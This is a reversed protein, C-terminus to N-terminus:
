SFYVFNSHPNHKLPLPLFLVPLPALALCFDPCHTFCPNRNLLVSSEIQHWFGFYNPFFHSFHWSTTLIKKYQNALTTYYSSSTTAILSFSRGLAVNGHTIFIFYYYLKFYFCTLFLGTHCASVDEGGSGEWLSTKRFSGGSLQPAKCNELTRGKEKHNRPLYERCQKMHDAFVFGGDWLTQKQKKM